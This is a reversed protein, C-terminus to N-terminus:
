PWTTRRPPTPLDPSYVSTRRRPRTAARVWEDISPIGLGDGFEVTVGARTKRTIRKPLRCGSDDCLAKSLECALEGAVLEHGAPPPFGYRYTVIFSGAEDAAATLDACRPWEDGDLRVLWAYDDVRYASTPLEVGDVWVSVVEYVPAPLVIENLSRCGCRNRGALMLGCRGCPVPEVCPRVTVECSGFVQGTWRWLMDVAMAEVRERWSEGPSEAPSEAPFCDDPCAEVDWGCPGEVLLTPM